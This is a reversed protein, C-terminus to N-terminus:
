GNLIGRLTLESGLTWTIERLIHTTHAMQDIYALADILDDHVLPSPFNVAEDLFASM